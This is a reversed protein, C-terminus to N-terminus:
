SMWVCLRYLPKVGPVDANEGSSTRQASICCTCPCCGDCGPANPANPLVAAVPVAGPVLEKPDAKPAWGEVPAAGKPCVMPVCCCCCGVVAKPVNDLKLWGALGAPNEKPLAGEVPKPPKPEVVVCGEVAVPVVPNPPKPWVCGACCVCGVDVKPDENPAVVEVGAKPVPEVKPEPKPLVCIVAVWGCCVLKENLKPPAGEVVM